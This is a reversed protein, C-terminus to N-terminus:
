PFLIGYIPNIRITFNITGFRWRGLDYSRLGWFFYINIIFLIHLPVLKKSSVHPDYHLPLVRLYPYGALTVFLWRFIWDMPPRLPLEIRGSGGGLGVEIIIM